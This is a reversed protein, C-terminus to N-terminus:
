IKRLTKVRNRKSRPSVNAGKVIAGLISIAKEIDSENFLVTGEKDGTQFATFLEPYEKLLYTCRMKSPIYASLVTDNHRYINVSRRCKIFCAELPKGTRLDMEFIIRYKGRYGLM